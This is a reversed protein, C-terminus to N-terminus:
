ESWVSSAEAAWLAPNERPCYLAQKENTMIMKLLFYILEPHPVMEPPPSRSCPIPQRIRVKRKGNEAWSTGIRPLDDRERPDSLVPLPRSGAGSLKSLYPCLSQTLSTPGSSLLTTEFM